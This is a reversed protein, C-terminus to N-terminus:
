IDFFQVIWNLSMVGFHHSIFVSSADNNNSKIMLGIGVEDKPNNLNHYIALM